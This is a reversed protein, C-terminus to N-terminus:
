NDCTEALLLAASNQSDDCIFSLLPYCAGDACTVHNSMLWDLVTDVRRDAGGISSGVIQNAGSVGSAGSAGFDTSGRHCRIDVIISCCFFSGVAPLIAARNSWSHQALSSRRARDAKGADAGM